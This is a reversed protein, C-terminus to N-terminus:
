DFDEVEVAKLCNRLIHSHYGRLDSETLENVSELILNEFTSTFGEVLKRRVCAKIKSFGFEIPNLMYSYPSLFQITLNNSVYFNRMNNSNHIRANDMVFVCNGIINKDTCKNILGEFFDKYKESDVRGVVCILYLVENRTIASILSVNRGRVLLIVVSAPAGRISRAMTRRLHLNFGSEDIFVKITERLNDENLFNRAYEQGTQKSITSNVNELTRSAKKLTIKLKYIIKRITELSVIINFNQRIKNKIQELTIQPNKEIETEIFVEVENTIKSNKADCTKKPFERLKKYISIIKRATEYTVNTLFASEKVSYGEITNKKILDERQRNNTSKNTRKVRDTM